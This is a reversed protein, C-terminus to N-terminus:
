LGLCVVEQSGRLFMRKGVFAPHSYVGPDDDFASTQKSILAFENATPDFLLLEGYKTIVMCREATGVIAAYDGFAGDEGIWITKLGNVADLCRLGEWVGLVRNAVVIPTHTDPALGDNLAAPEPVIKGEADFKYLRTGNNETTVLLQEGVQIPTPVNFDNDHPPVVRWLQKGSETDWGCLGKKDHGVLQRKGGFTGVILSGFAAHDGPTKWIVEGTEPKLAVLSANPGGPNVILKGDVVLPSSTTGWHNDEDKAGFESLVDKKWVVEGNKLKVCTLLGFANYLFVLDGYILPTARASNGYDLKGPSVIRLTWLEEGDGARLCRFIDQSDLPDRDAVIVVQENAALGALGQQSLRKRWVVNPQEAM